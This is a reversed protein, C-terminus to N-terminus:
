IATVRDIVRFRQVQQGPSRELVPQKQVMECSEQSTQFMNFMDNM